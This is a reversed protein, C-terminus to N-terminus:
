TSAGPLDRYAFSTFRNFEVERRDSNFLAQRLYPELRRALTGSRQAEAAIREGLEGVEDLLAGENVSTLRGNDLVIAGDIVVSRVSSGSECFILQTLANNLPRFATTKLDLLTLDARYGPSIAGIKGEFGAARAGATTAMRFVDASSPWRDYNPDAARPLTAALRMTGFMNQNDNSASGDTGIAVRCGRERMALLPAIGSGLKLNSMPNHAITSGREAVLDLDADDVWCGHALVARPGLLGFSDLRAAASMGWLERGALASAKTEELHTQFPTGLDDCIVACGALFEDSCKTPVTPGIGFTVRGDAAGHWRQALRRMTALVEVLPFPRRQELEARLEAPLVRVLEPESALIGLDCVQPAISARMGVDLYAQVVAALHEDTPLPVIQAQEVACTTGTKVMEIAGLAAALYVDRPTRHLARSFLYHVWIELPLGDIAGRSLHNHTHTHANVLGPIVLM